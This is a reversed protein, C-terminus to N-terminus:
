EADDQDQRWGRWWHRLGVFTAVLVTLFGAIVATLALRDSAGLGNWWQLPHQLFQVNM